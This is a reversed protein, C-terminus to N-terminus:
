LVDLVTRSSGDFNTGLVQTLGLPGCDCSPVLSHFTVNVCGQLM